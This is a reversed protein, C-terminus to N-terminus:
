EGKRFLPAPPEENYARRYWETDEDRSQDYRGLLFHLKTRLKVLPSLEPHSRGERNGSDIARSVYHRVMEWEDKTLGM